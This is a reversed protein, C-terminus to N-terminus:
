ESHIWSQLLRSSQTPEHKLHTTVQDFIEQARLRAPDPAPPELPVHPQGGDALERQGASEGQKGAAKAPLAARALAPRLGFLLVLLLGAL